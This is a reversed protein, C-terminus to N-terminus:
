FVIEAIEIDFILTDSRVAIIDSDDVARNLYGLEPPVILVRKGGEKMNLIGEQFGETFSTSSVNYSTPTTRSNKYTSEFVTGNISRGTFYVDVQDRITVTLEGNGEELEYIILGSETTDPTIGQISFSEPVTTFDDPPLSFPNDGGCSICFFILAIALLFNTKLASITNM